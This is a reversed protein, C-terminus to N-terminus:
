EYRWPRLRPIWMPVNARYLDYIEGLEDRLNREELFTGIVLYISCLFAFELRGLTMVPALWLAILLLLYMPHRCYVYPGKVSFVPPKNPRNKMSRIHTRIGLFDLYDIFFTTYIMGAICGLYLISIFWYLIGDVRWLVGSIPRWLSLVLLLTLGAIFVYVTRVLSDGVLKAIHKKAFNRALLSHFAGFSIFLVANLMADPVGGSGENQFHLLYFMWLIPIDSFIRTLIILAYLFVPKM